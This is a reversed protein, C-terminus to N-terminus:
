RLSVLGILFKSLLTSLIRLDLLLFDMLSSYSSDTMVNL